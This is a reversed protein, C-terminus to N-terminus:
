DEIRGRLDGVWEDAAKWAVETDRRVSEGHDGAAPFSGLFKVDQQKSKLDRLCDAM